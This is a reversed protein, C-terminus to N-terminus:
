LISCKLNNIIRGYRKKKLIKKKNKKFCILKLAKIRLSSIYEGEALDIFLGRTDDFTEFKEPLLRLKFINFSARM